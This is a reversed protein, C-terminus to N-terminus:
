QFAVPCTEKTLEACSGVSCAKENREWSAVKRLPLTPFPPPCVKLLVSMSSDVRIKIDGGCYSLMMPFCPFLTQRPGSGRMKSGQSLSEMMRERYYRTCKGAVTPETHQLGTSKTRLHKGYVSLEEVRKQHNESM